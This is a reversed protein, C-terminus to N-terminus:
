EDVRVWSVFVGPAARPLLNLQWTRGEDYSVFETPDAAGVALESRVRVTVVRADYHCHKEGIPASTWECDHPPREITVKSSDLGYKWAYGYITAPFLYILADDIFAYLCLLALLSPLIKGRHLLFGNVIEHASPQTKAVRIGALLFLWGFAVLFGNYHQRNDGVVWSTVAAVFLAGSSLVWAANGPM